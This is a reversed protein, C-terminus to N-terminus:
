IICILRDFYLRLCFISVIPDYEPIPVEMAEEAKERTEELGAKCFNNNWKPAGKPYLGMYLYDSSSEVNRHSVGAAHVAIDGAKMDFAVGQQQDDLPGVGYLCKTNGKLAAYAEHTNSHYHSNGYHRFTGGKLWANNELFQRVNDETLDEPLVNRYVLVPLRSNPCYKTPKTRYVQWCPTLKFHYM